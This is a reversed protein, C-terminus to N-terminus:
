FFVYDQHDIPIGLVRFTDQGEVTNIKETVLDLCRPIIDVDHM